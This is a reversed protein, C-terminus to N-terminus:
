EKLSIANLCIEYLSSANEIRYVVGDVVIHPSTGSIFVKTDEWSICILTEDGLKPIWKSFATHFCPSYKTFDLCQVVVEYQSDVPSLSCFSVNELPIAAFDKTQTENPFSMVQLTKGKYNKFSYSFVGFAIMSSVSGILLIVAIIVIWKKKKM